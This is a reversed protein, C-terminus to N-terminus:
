NAGIDRSLGYKLKAWDDLDCSLLRYEGLGSCFEIIVPGGDALSLHSM